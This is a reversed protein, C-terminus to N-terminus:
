VQAYEQTALHMISICVGANSFVNYKYTVHTNTTLRQNARPVRFLACASQVFLRKNAEQPSMCLLIHKLLTHTHVSIDLNEM